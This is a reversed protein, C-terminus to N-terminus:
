WVGAADYAIDRLLGASLTHRRERDVSRLMANVFRFAAGQGFAKDPWMNMAPAPQQKEFICNLRGCCFVCIKGAPREGTLGDSLYDV